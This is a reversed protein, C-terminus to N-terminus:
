ANVSLYLTDLLSDTNTIKHLIERKLQSLSVNPIMEAAPIAPLVNNGIQMFDLKSNSGRLAWDEDREESEEDRNSAELGQLKRRRGNGTSNEKTLDHVTEVEKAYMDGVISLDSVIRYTMFSNSEELDESDPNNLASESPIIVLGLNPLLQRFNPDSRSMSLLFPTDAWSLAIDQVIQHVTIVANLRSYLLINTVVILFTSLRTKSNDEFFTKM